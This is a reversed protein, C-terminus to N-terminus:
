PTEGEDRLAALVRTLDRVAAALELMPTLDIFGAPSPRNCSACPLAWAMGHSCVNPITLVTTYAFTM